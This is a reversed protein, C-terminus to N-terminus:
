SVTWGKNTAIAIDDDTLFTYANSHLKIKGQSSNPKEGNGTFDYLGNFINIYSEKTLNPCQAPSSYSNELSTKINLFGGVNKLKSSVFYMPSYSYSGTISTCDLTGVTEFNSPSLLHGMNTVKSTDWYSSVSLDVIGTYSIMYVMNTCDSFDWTDAVSLDTLSSCYQFLSEANNIKINRLTTIDKLKSCQEFCKFWSTKGEFDIYDPIATMDSNQFSMNVGTNKDYAKIPINVNVQKILNDFLVPRM